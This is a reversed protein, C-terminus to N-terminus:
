SAALMGALRRKHRSAQQTLSALLRDSANSNLLAAHAAEVETHLKASLQQLQAPTLVQVLSFVMADHAALAGHIESIDEALQAPTKEM